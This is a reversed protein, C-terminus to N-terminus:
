REGGGGEVWRSATELDLSFVQSTGDEDLTVGYLVQAAQVTLQHHTILVFQIDQSLEHLVELYRGVNAEDLMADVEDLVCFPTPSVKLLAFILAVATLSREGGSLLALRQTRRGPLRVEIDVGPEEEGQPVLLLRAKGGGFLRTFLAQFEQQVRDFTRRFARQMHRELEGALRLLDAEAKRLDQLQQRLFTVRQDLEEFEQLIEPVVPGLRKWQQRLDRVRAEAEALAAELGSAPLDETDHPLATLGPLGRSGAVQQLWARDEPTLAPEERWRRLLAARRAQAQQLRQLAEQYRGEQQRLAQRAEQERERAQEWRAELAEQQAEPEQMRTRLAEVERAARASQERWGEARAAVEAVQQAMDERQRRLRELAARAQDRAQQLQEVRQGHARVREELAEVQREWYTAEAMLAELHLARLQREVERLHEQIQALRDALEEQERDMGAEQAELEKLEQQGQHERQQEWALQSRAKEMRALVQRRRAELEERQEELSARKEELEQLRKRTEEVRQREKRANELASEHQEELFRLKEQLEQRERTRQFLAQAQPRGVQLAGGPFYVWGRPTVVRAQPPLHALAQHAAQEDEVLGIRALLWLLAPEAQPETWRVREHAWAVWGSVRPAPLPEPRQIRDLPLLLVRGPATEAAQRLGPTLTRVILGDAWPGLAAALATEWERPIVLLSAVLGVLVGQEEALRALRRAAESYGTGRAEAQELVELRARTRALDVKVAHLMQHREEAAKEMRPLGERLTQIERRRDQLASNVQRLQGELAQGEEQWRQLDDQLEQQRKRATAIEQHLAARRRELAQRQARLEAQRQQLREQERRWRRRQALLADRRAQVERLRARAQERQSRAEALEQEQRQLEERAEQLRSQALAMRAHLDQEQRELDLLRQQLRQLEERARTHQQLAQQWAQEAERLRAHLERLQSRLQQLQTELHEREQRVQLWRRRYRDLAQRAAELDQRARDVAQTRQRWQLAYWRRLWARLDEQVRQAERMRAVRRELRARRPELEALLDELRELNQRTVELRRLAEERRQRYLGIGAAEELLRRREEPRLQLVHDVMGQGIFTYGGGTLGAQALLERVDKLRVRRGNLLLEGRGERDVRRTLAVETFEVPLWGDENNFTVTVQAMGARPRRQTGAFILDEVRRARLLRLSPEGLVWRLADVLNSKGAGNPGVIATLRDGFVLRTPRAFSKFGHLELALLRAPM